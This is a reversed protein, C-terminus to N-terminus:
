LALGLEGSQPGFCDIWESIFERGCFPAGLGAFIVNLSAFRSNGAPDRSMPIHALAHKNVHAVLGPPELDIRLFINQPVFLEVNEPMQVQSIEDASSSCQERRFGPLDRHPKRGEDDQCLRQARWWLLPM